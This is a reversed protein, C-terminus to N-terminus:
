SEFFHFAGFGTVGEDLATTDASNRLDVVECRMERRIACRLFARIPQFGCAQDCTVKNIELREIARATARDMKQAIEYSHDRSLNSSIVFITEDGGWLTDILASVESSEVRGVVLPVLTFSEFLRQFFPLLVEVAHEPFHAAEFVRVYKFGSLEEIANRDVNVAGLPTQFLSSDPLAIGPFDYFHSPGLVVVRRAQSSQGYWPGFARGAVGGSAIFGAHPALVAKPSVTKSDSRGARLYGDVVASLFNREAPYYRGAQAPSRIEQALKKTPIELLRPM